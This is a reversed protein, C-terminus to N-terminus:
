VGEAHRRYNSGESCSKLEISITMYLRKQEMLEKYIRIIISKSFVIFYKKSKKVMQLGSMKEPQAACFGPKM